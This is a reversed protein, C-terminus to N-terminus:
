RRKERTFGSSSSRESHTKFFSIEQERERNRELHRVAYAGLQSLTGGRGARGRDDSLTRSAIPIGESSQGAQRPLVRNELRIFIGGVLWRPDVTRCPGVAKAPPDLGCHARDHPRPFDVGSEIALAPSGWSRPNIELLHFRGSGPEYRSEVMAVGDPGIDRLLSEAAEYMREDLFTIRRTSTGREQPGRGAEIAWLVRPRRWRHTPTPRWRGKGSCDKPRKPSGLRQSCECGGKEGSRPEKAM